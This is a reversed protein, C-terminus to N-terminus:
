RMLRRGFEELRGEWIVGAKAKKRKRKLLLCAFALFVFCAFSFFCLFIMLFMCM